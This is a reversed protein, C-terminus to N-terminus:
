KIFLDDLVDDSEIDEVVEIANIFRPEDDAGTNSLDQIMVTASVANALVDIDFSQQAVNQAHDTATVNISATGVSDKTPTVSLTVGSADYSLQLGEDAILAPNLSNVTVSIDASATQNDSVSITVLNAQSDAMIEQKGATITPAQQDVETAPDDNDSGCAVLAGSLAILCTYQCLQKFAKM